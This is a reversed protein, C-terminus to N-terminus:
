FGDKYINYFLIIQALAVSSVCQKLGHVLIITKSIISTKGVIFVPFGHWNLRYTADTQLVRESRLKGLNKNTSFIITFRPEEDENEDDIHSHVVYGQVDDEPVELNASM